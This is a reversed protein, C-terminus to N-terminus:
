CRYTCGLTCVRLVTGCRAVVRSVPGPVSRAFDCPGTAKAVTASGVLQPWPQRMAVGPLMSSSVLLDGNRVPGNEDSVLIGGEGACNVVVDTEEESDAGGDSAFALNGIRRPSKSCTASVVGFVAPDSATTSLRVEPVAHDATPTKRYTGASVVIRGPMGLGDSAAAAAAASAKEVAASTAWCCRHQATFDLVGAFFDGVFRVQAGTRSRLVLDEGDMQM